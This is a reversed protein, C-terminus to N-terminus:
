LGVALEGSGGAEIGSYRGLGTRCLTKPDSAILMTYPAASEWTPDFATQLAGTDKSDFLLDRSIAHMKQLVRM